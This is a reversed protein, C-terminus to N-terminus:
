PFAEDINGLRKGISLLNGKSWKSLEAFNQSSKISDKSSQYTIDDSVDFEFM